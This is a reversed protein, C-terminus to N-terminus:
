GWSTLYREQEATLEDIEVGLSALKLRAVERDLRAPVPHVGPGLEHGHRVLEEAALAQGAFSVDMVAAPHGEAAALNVVRGGALLNLRRRTPPGLDYQDVLPRVRRVGGVALERLAALDLEVDFHGANALVAGDKMREFHERRLVDRSGTVTIFVDGREAARLGPMVEFGEMRAELAAVPDIECVVVSAGAGRARQAVGRGTNGYGVVVITRGALLLNTARLIGDLTSQGTGFRDNFVRETRAENVALVPCRLRGEAAMARLRLLGTTTEETGGLMRAAAEPRTAHLVTVLDAGDDVTVQPEGEVLAAVHGAYADLDEGHRARVEVGEEAALAAATDDQTSLPNAACIAVRAGGAVLTRVLTATEATVHLCAAVAVGDLPRQAAFRERVSALVPMQADAWAIRDRGADALSPDAVESAV